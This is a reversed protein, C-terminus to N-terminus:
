YRSFICEYCYKIGYPLFTAEWLRPSFSCDDWYRFRVLVVSEGITISWYGQGAAEALGKLPDYVIPEHPVQLCTSLKRWKLGTELLPSAGGVLQDPQFGANTIGKNFSVM